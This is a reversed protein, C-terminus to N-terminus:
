RSFRQLSRTFVGMLSIPRYDKLQQPDKIKPLLSIFSSNCSSDLKGYREFYKVVVAIDGLLVDWYKKIFKFTFGDPGPSKDNGCAWVASKIEQLSFPSELDHKDQVSIKRFLNSQFTPRVPCTELFKSQFFRLAEVKILASNTCWNGNIMLGNIRNKRNNSNIFGHFLKSNEDGDMAWRIKSKQRADMVVTKEMEIIDKYGVRRTEIEEASLVRNEADMDLKHVEDKLRKLKAEEKSYDTRRWARLAEKIHKLKANLYLDPTGYGAFDNWAKIFVKEFGERSLWSNFMKFPPAGFDCWSSSLLIPCHDSIERPLATVTASPVLDVFKPCVLFRDLKSM